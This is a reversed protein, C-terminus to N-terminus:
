VFDRGVRQTENSDSSPVGGESNSDDLSDLFLEMCVEANVPTIGASRFPPGHVHRNISGAKKWQKRRHEKWSRQYRILVDDYVDPLRHPNRKKRVTYAFDPDWALARNKAAACSARRENATRPHRFSKHLKRRRIGPVPDWRYRYFQFPVDSELKTLAISGLLRLGSQTALLQGAKPTNGMEIKQVKM